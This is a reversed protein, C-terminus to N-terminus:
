VAADQRALPTSATVLGATIPSPRFGKVTMWLGISLEWVFIPVTAIGSWLSLQDNLGFMTTIAAAILLPAGILGLVPIIRPVLRSKYMLYGLCLANIAPILGPGLLFTWDRIAVLSRGTTVLSAANAGTAGALDQRLTVVALLCVVGIVVVAAEFARATVFGLAVGENQRKVVPFLTVATGIAAFANILDLLCGLVVRTDAGSSTIYGPNNLVPHLLFLAPISSIFTILYFVGAVLATKRVPDMPQKGKVANAASPQVTITM